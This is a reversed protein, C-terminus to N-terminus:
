CRYNKQRERKAFSRHKEAISTAPKDLQAIQQVLPPTVMCHKPM